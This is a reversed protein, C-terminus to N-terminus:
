CCNTWASGCLDDLKIWGVIYKDPVKHANGFEDTTSILSVKLWEGCIELPRVIEHQEVNCLIESQPTPNSYLKTPTRTSLALISYPACLGLYETPQKDDEIEYDYYSIIQWLNNGVPKVSLEVALVEEHGPYIDAVINGNPKDFLPAYDGELHIFCRFPITDNYTTDVNNASSYFFAFLICCSLIIRYRM